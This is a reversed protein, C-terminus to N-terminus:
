PMRLVHRVIFVTIFASILFLATALFSRRSLNAIGCIGHGSTCGNSISSGIGVLLGALALIGANTTKAPESNNFLLSFTPILLGILFATRWRRTSHEFQFLRGYIGSIGAIKGNFLVLVAASSGILIGGILQPLLQDLHTM